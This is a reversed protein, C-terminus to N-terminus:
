KASQGMCGIGKLEQWNEEIFIKFHGRMYLVKNIQKYYNLGASYIKTTTKFKRFCISDSESDIFILEAEEALYRIWLSSIMLSELDKLSHINYLEMFKGGGQVKDHIEYRGTEDSIQKVVAAIFFAEGVMRLVIGNKNRFEKNKEFFDKIAGETIKM